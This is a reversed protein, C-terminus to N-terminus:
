YLVRVKTTTSNPEHLLIVNHKQIPGDEIQETYHFNLSFRQEELLEYNLHPKIVMKLYEYYHGLFEQFTGKDLYSLSTFKYESTYTNSSFTVEEKVSYRWLRDCDLHTLWQCKTPIALVDKLERITGLNDANIKVTGKVDRKM